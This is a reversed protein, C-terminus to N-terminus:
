MLWKQQFFGECWWFPWKGVGYCEFGLLFCLAMCTFKTEKSLWITDINMKAKMLDVYIAHM